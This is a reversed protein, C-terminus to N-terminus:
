RNRRGKRQWRVVGIALNGLGDVLWAVLIVVILWSPAWTQGWDTGALILSFILAEIVGWLVQTPPKWSLPNYFKPASSGKRAEIAIARGIAKGLGVPEILSSGQPAGTEELYRATRPDHGFVELVQQVAQASGTGPLVEKLRAIDEAPIGAEALEDLAEPDVAVYHTRLTQLEGEAPTGAAPEFAPSAAIPWIHVWAPTGALKGSQKPFWFSAAFRPGSQSIMIAPYQDAGPAGGLLFGDHVAVTRSGPQAPPVLHWSTKSASALIIMEAETLQGSLLTRGSPMAELREDDIPEGSQVEVDDQDVYLAGTGFKLALAFDEVQQGLRTTGDAGALIILGEPNVAIGAEIIVLENWPVPQSILSIVERATLVQRVTREADAPTTNHFILALAAVLTQPQDGGQIPEPHNSGM